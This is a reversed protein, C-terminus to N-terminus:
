VAAARTSRGREIRRRPNQRGAACDCARRHQDPHQRRAYGADARDTGVVGLHVGDIGGDPRKRRRRRRRHPDAHQRDAAPRHSRVDAAPQRRARRRHRADHRRRGVSKSQRCQAALRGDSAINVGNVFLGFGDFFQPTGPEEETGWVVNFFVSAGGAPADFTADIQTVDTYDSAVITDLIAEQQPTSGQFITEDISDDPGSSTDAVNGSSLVIGSGTPLGYIGGRSQFTGASLQGNIGQLGNVTFATVNFGPNSGFLSQRLSNSDLTPTVALRPTGTEFFAIRRPGATEEVGSIQVANGAVDKVSGLVFFVDFVNTGFGGPRTFKYKVEVTLEDDRTISETTFSTPRNNSDNFGPGTVVLDDLGITTLDIGSPVNFDSYAIGFEFTEGSEGAGQIFSLGPGQTDAMLLRQQLSEVVVLM